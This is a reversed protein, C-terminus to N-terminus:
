RSTGEAPSYTAETDDQGERASRERRRRRMRHISGVTSAVSACILVISIASTFFSLWPSGRDASAQLGQTLGSEAIPGLILGLVVPAPGVGVALLLYGAIGLAGMVLVDTPSNRIAFSGVVSLLVIGPALYRTPMLVVARQLARGAVLGVPMMMMASLGLAVVFTYVLQGQAQFLQAGPRLGQLLLAGLIIAHPPSGPVGLTLTPVMGGGITANNATESAVVGELKGKGFEEPNSSARRAENYAVLNSVSSGAGPLAGIVVGIVASRILNLPRLLIRSAARWAASLGQREEERVGAELGRGRILRIVEPITFLGIMAPILEVGGQLESMGFTFRVDGGVPALGITSLLIGLLAGLVGKLLSNEALTAVITLGFIAIWFNEQPGFRLAFGALLPGVAILAVIGLVGGIFSGVTSGIVAEESRGQRTMPYGELATAISSPTGPANVMIATFSGGYIAGVYFAGLLVLGATSGLTYSFPVLLALGMTASLGPMGGVILGGVTGILILLLMSPGVAQTAGTLLSELLM